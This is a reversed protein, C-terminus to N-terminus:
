EERSDRIAQQRAYLELEVLVRSDPSKHRNWKWERLLQESFFRVGYNSNVAWGMSVPQWNNEDRMRSAAQFLDFSRRASWQHLSDAEKEDFKKVDLGSELSVIRGRKIAAKRGDRSAVISGGYVRVEGAGADFRYLGKREIEVCGDALYISARTGQIERVIEVIVSGKELIVRTDELLNREIRLLGFVGMRLYAEPSLLLEVFGLETRLNQGPQIQLVENRSLKVQKGDISVDGRVCQVIGAKTGVFHQADAAGILLGIFVVIITFRIPLGHEPRKM